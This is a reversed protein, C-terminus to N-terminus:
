RAPVPVGAMGALQRLLTDQRAVLIRLSDIQEHMLATEQRANNLEDGMERMQEAILTDAQPNRCGAVIILMGALAIRHLHLSRMHLTVSTTLLAFRRARYCASAIRVRGACEFPARQAPDIVPVPLASRM